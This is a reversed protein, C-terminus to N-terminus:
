TEKIKKLIGELDGLPCYEIVIGLKPPNFTVGLTKIVNVDNLRIALAAEQRFFTINETTLFDLVFYKVVVKIILIHCEFHQFSLIQQIKTNQYKLIKTNKKGNLNMVNTFFKM